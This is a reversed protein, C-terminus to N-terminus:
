FVIGAGWVGFILIYPAFVIISAIVTNCSTFSKYAMVLLVLSWIAILDIAGLFSSFEGETRILLYNLNLPNLANIDIMGNSGLMIVWAALASFISPVACWVVISYWHKFSIPKDSLKSIYYFYAAKLAMIIFSGIFVGIVSSVILLTKNDVQVQLTARLDNEAIGPQLSQEVLQDLLYESDVLNFFGLQVSSVLLVVFFWPLFWTTKEKLRIFVKNPAVLIDTFNNLM